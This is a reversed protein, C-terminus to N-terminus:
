LNSPLYAISPLLLCYYAVVTELCIPCYAFMPLSACPYVRPRKKTVRVGVRLIGQGGDRTRTVRM